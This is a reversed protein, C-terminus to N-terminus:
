IADSYIVEELALRKALKEIEGQHMQVIHGASKMAEKLIHDQEPAESVLYFRHQLDQVMSDVIARDAALTDHRGKTILDFAAIGACQAAIRNKSHVESRELAHEPLFAHEVLTIKEFELELAKATLAKASQYLALNQRDRESLMAQQKKGFQVKDKVALFDETEVQEKQKKIAHLSAENVLNELAAGSFGPTLAAIKDIEVQHPRKGLYVGLIAQRDKLSPLSLHVHRDFRGARLLADDLMEVRNTAAVVIVGSDSDFGDMETLLQNLTAEREDNRNGGRKKGVSDIEDIFILAPANKKATAFLEHVKKAGMGVYIEVFSSGSQYYFPVGAEGALAKAILTKGVGPPGVLLIGKPIRAGFRHYKAPSLFFDRIEFLEEKAEDLGAVDKLRVSSTIPTFTPTPTAVEGAKQAIKGIFERHRKDSHRFFYYVAGMALVILFVLRWDNLLLFLTIILLAAFSLAAIQKPNSLNTM